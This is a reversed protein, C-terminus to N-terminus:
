ESAEYQVAGTGLPRDTLLYTIMASAKVNM